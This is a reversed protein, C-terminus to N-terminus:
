KTLDSPPPRTLLCCFNIGGGSQSVKDSIDLKSSLSSSLSGTSTILARFPIEEFSSSSVFSDLSNCCAYFAIKNGFVNRLNKEIVISILQKGRLFYFNGANRMLYIILNTPVHWFIYLLCYWWWLTMIPQIERGGGTVKQIYM